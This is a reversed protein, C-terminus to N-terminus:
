VCVCVRARARARAAYLNREISGEQNAHLFDIADIAYFILKLAQKVSGNVLVM